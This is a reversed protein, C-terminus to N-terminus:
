SNRQKRGDDPTSPIAQAVKEKADLRVLLRQLQEILAYALSRYNLVYLAHGSTAEEEARDAIWPNDTLVQPPLYAVPYAAVRKAYALSRAPVWPQKLM